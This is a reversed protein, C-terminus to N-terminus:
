YKKHEKLNTSKMSHRQAVAEPCERRARPGCITQFEDAFSMLSNGLRLTVHAWEIAIQTATVNPFRGLPMGRNDPFELIKVIRLSAFFTLRSYHPVPTRENRHAPQNRNKHATHEALLAAFPSLELSSCGGAARSLRKDLGSVHTVTAHPQVVTFNAM